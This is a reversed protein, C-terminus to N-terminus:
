FRRLRQNRKSWNKNMESKNTAFIIGIEFESYIISLLCILIMDKM